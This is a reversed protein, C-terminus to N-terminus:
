QKLLEDRERDSLQDGGILSYVGNGYATIGNGTLVKGVVAEWSEGPWTRRQPRAHPCGPQTAVPTASTFLVNQRWTM